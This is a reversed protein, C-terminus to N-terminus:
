SLALSDNTFKEDLAEIEPTIDRIYSSIDIDQIANSADDFNVDKLLDTATNTETQAKIQTLTALTLFIAFVVKLNNKM